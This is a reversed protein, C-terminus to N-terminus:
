ARFIWSEFSVKYEAIDRRIRGVSGSFFVKVIGYIDWANVRYANTVYVCKWVSASVIVYVSCVSETSTSDILIFIADSARSILFFLSCFKDSYFLVLFVLLFLSVRM